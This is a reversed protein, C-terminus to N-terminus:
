RRDGGSAVQGADATPARGPTRGSAPRRIQPETPGEDDSDLTRTGACECRCRFRIQNSQKENENIEAPSSRTGGILCPKRNEINNPSAPAVRKIPPLRPM